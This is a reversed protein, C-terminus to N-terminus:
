AARRDARGERVLDLHPPYGSSDHLHQSVFPMDACGSDIPLPDPRAIVGYIPGGGFPPPHAFVSKTYSNLKAQTESLDLIQAHDPNESLDLAKTGNSLQSSLKQSLASTSNIANLQSLLSGYTSIAQM